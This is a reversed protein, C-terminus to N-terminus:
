EETETSVPWYMTDGRFEVGTESVIVVNIEASEVNGMSLVEVYFVKGNTYVDSFIDDTYVFSEVIPGNTGTWKVEITMTLGNDAGGNPMYVQNVITEGNLLGMGPRFEIKFGEGTYDNAWYQNHTSEKTNPTVFVYGNGEATEIWIPLEKNDQPLTLNTYPVLLMGSTTASSDIVYNGNFAALGKATLQYGNLDLTVGNVVVLAVSSEDSNKLMRVIDGEKAAALAAEVTAYVTEGDDYTGDKDADIYAVGDPTTDGSSANQTRTITIVKTGDDTNKSEASECGDAPTMTGTTFGHLHVTISEGVALVDGITATETTNTLLCITDGPQAAKVAAELSLYQVGNIEAVFTVFSDDTEDSTGDGTGDGTDDGTGDGTGDESATALNAGPVYEMYYLPNEGDFKTITYTQGNEVSFMIIGDSPIAITHETTTTGDALTVAVKLTTIVFTGDAKTRSESGVLILIGDGAEAVFGISLESNMKVARTLTLGNYSVVTDGLTTDEKGSITFFDDTFGDVTFNHVYKNDVEDTDQVAGCDLLVTGHYACVGDEYSHGAPIEVEQTDGCSSCNQQKKGAAICSAPILTDGDVWTHGAAIVWESEAYVETCDADKYYTKCTECYWYELNGNTTCTKDVAEVHNVTHAAIEETYSDGCKSCTYTMLGATTCTAPTTVTSAYSHEGAAVEVTKQQDTAWTEAFDATYTVAGSETCSLSAPNKTVTANATATEGCSCTGTVTCTSYDDAWVYEGPVFTHGTAAEGKGVWSDVAIEVTADADSFYKGCTCSWYASDGAKTCTPDTAPHATLVDTTHECTTDGTSANDYSYVMYFLFIADGKTITHDGASLDVTLTGDSGITTSTGDIKVKKGAADTSGGFVLTLKGDAPAKFTISTASEMKLCTGLTLGAYTVSGKDTATNGTITYFSSTTGSESFNHVYEVTTPQAAGCVSCVGDVYNHGTIPIEVYTTYDCNTCHEYANWGVAQCTAAKAEVTELTDTHDCEPESTTGDEYTFSMYFLYVSDDKSITHEGSTLDISLIGESNIDKSTGDIKIGKNASASNFVLTLTGAAPANVTMETGSEIKLCTGLSLNNYSVTGQNTATNNKTGTSTFIGSNGSVDTWNYTVTVEEAHVDVMPVISLVLCVCLALCLMWKKM